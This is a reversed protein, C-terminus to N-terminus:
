CMKHILEHIPEMRGDFADLSIASIVFILFKKAAIITCCASMFQTGDLSVLGEKKSQLTLRGL